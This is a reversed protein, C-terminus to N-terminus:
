QKLEAPSQDANLRWVRRDPFYHQLDANEAAGMDRAWVVKAVDISAANYVWDHDLDHEPGYSVIVLHRGPSDELQRLIAARALNGRPWRPEIHVGAAVTGVRLFTLACCIVPVARVIAAGYPQGRLRWLRLHRLCQMLVLYLLGTGAALYHPSAWTEVATGVLLLGGALL